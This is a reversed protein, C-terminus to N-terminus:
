KKNTSIVQKNWTKQKETIKKNNQVCKYYSLINSFGKAINFKTKLRTKKKRM